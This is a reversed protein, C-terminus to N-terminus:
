ENSVVANEMLFDLVKERMLYERYDERSNSGLFKEVTKAGSAATYQELTTSLEEDSINLNELNAVAQLAIDQEAAKTKYEEVFDKYSKGYVNQTYTDNDVNYSAAMEKIGEQAKEEYKKLISKPLNQFSCSNLFADWVSHEVDANYSELLDANYYDFAYQRLEDVTSVGELGIAAAVTDKTMEAPVIFNVTVTFVVDQGALAPNNKYEEPFTLPLDVTEGPNVGILGEEFGDIFQHSGITLKTGHATGGEFAVDDKKGEFDIDVTDGEAVARDTIGGDELKFYQDYYRKAYAEVEGEEPEQKEVTVAIGKYEGLTVYKEVPMDKLPEKAAESGCGGLMGAALVVAIVSLMKKKM